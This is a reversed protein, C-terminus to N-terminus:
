AKVSPQSKDLFSLGFAGLFQAQALQAAQNLAVAGLSNGVVVRPPRTGNPMEILKAIAVAVEHPNPPNEREFSAARAQTIKGPIGAVEGYSSIREKDAAQQANRFFSTPYASPQVLVLDVGFPSIEYRFTDSLAEIAFKSSGYIGFFPGTVRGLVSGVNVVLGEGQKRLAPLTARLVRHVGFVNVEYLDRVQDTTFAESVDLVGVGANNIVVDLKGAQALVANVGKDVSADSTVDLEEVHIGKAKLAETHTRNRGQIDRMTAFVRHGALALTEATDRGFGSSAGTVLINKSM